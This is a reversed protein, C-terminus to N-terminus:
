DIVILQLQIGFLLNIHVNSTGQQERFTSFIDKGGIAMKNVHREM